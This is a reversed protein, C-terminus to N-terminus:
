QIKIPTIHLSDLGILRALRDVLEKCVGTSENPFELNCSMGDEYIQFAFKDNGPFSVLTGQICRMKLVDKQIEGSSRLIITILRPADSPLTEATPSKDAIGIFVPLSNKEIRMDSQTSVPTVEVTRAPKQVISKIEEVATIMRADSIKPSPTKNLEKTTSYGEPWDNFEPEPVTPEDAIFPEEPIEPMDGESASDIVPHDVSKISHVQNETKAQYSPAASTKKEQPTSFAAEDLNIPKLSDVLIKPDGSENDVKGEVLVVKEVALNEACRSWTKPFIVLEMSGQLDDLTAFGMPKGNKTQFTRFKSIMGGVIVKQKNAAEGLTGAYHTVRPELYPMYPSLPNDSVYLGLLDKEWTLLERRDPNKTQPLTIVEMASSGNSSGGFLSMQGSLVAKMHSGSVAIIRDLSELLALRPGFSDLAGVRVLSELARRGVQRLDIRTAFDTLDRFSGGEKRGAIILDVPGQGVNKIAGMGFRISVKGDACDEITFDWGSSNVDPPLVDIGMSRCDAVYFAVKEAENKSASLLATMYEVTYHTKLYATEVSIMGYDAAHSKNFGYRAFNEWDEFILRATEEPIGHEVAGNTFKIRHKEILDAKKKSIAKRFNDAEQATYGALDMAAFMLQEQYISIGYTEKLIPELLPHRYTVEEEGHMRRIYQPIFDMPGPRFLAVMAIVNSLTQPKMQVIYRTMGNGELQFVGATHGKSIFEFTEPDDTPINNLNLEIGHRMKILDCARQMITLTVLGLFDVKLLGLKDVHSMEYQMVTKIPSDESGNTPRHLPAYEVIPRDAIIVGAAHTGASRVTGEMKSATDILNKLYPAEDYVAKLEPVEELAGAISSSKGPMTPILKAVRDVESLPIDMVRGVDRLAGRAGMTGFTIIQAVKDDGYKKACHEMIKGRQDDQFDLDIDPMENRGPNLFREFILGHDLPEVLTIDLTYAVMSGAGSGRANYWVGNQRAYSCLDWVILFYADFGMRHIIGLEYELRERVKPDKARAGYRRLLGEECLKRLYSETDYGEPVEFLPLHYGNKDLNLACRDAILQTNTISEPVEAFLRQMEEPSRLYYSPDDMRFRNKDSLLSGTQIALLIDQLRFDDANIYHVDNTAIFRAQYHPGLEILSKNIAPLERINHEQLELFFNDAGFVDYYWDLKKRAAEIGQNAITRPIEAAMCGSTAILGESHAALFEHDVRPFYYFGELQAASAIKLLNHYGTENEALLLMHNSHKDLKSDRDKMTRAALYAELGIIPKIGAATAANYFEIAGFMTGHDTLAISNMGMEKVKSVLKKIDSFGDLLSYTSHVHLHVFPM